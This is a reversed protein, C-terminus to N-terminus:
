FTLAGKLPNMPEGCRNLIRRDDAPCDPHDSVGWQILAVREISMVAVTDRDGEFGCRPCRLRRYGSEVLKFGCRPCTSSTGSPDVVVLPVGSKEAQWDVWFELRRYSLIPLSVRHERPLERLSEVLGTLDEGAVIGM